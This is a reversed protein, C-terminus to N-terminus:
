SRNLLLASTRLWKKEVFVQSTRVVAMTGSKLFVQKGCSFPQAVGTEYLCVLYTRTFDVLALSTGSRNRRHEVRVTYFSM